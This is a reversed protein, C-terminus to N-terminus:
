WGWEQGANSRHFGNSSPAMQGQDLCHHPLPRQWSRRGPHLKPLVLPSHNSGVVGPSVTAPVPGEKRLAEPFQTPQQRAVTSGEPLEKWVSVRGSPSESTLPAILQPSRSSRPM